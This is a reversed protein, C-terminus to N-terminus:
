FPMDDDFDDLNNNVQIVNDGVTVGSSNNVSVKPKSSEGKGELMQM